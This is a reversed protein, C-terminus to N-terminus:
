ALLSYSRKRQEDFIPTVMSVSLEHVGLNLDPIILHLSAITDVLISLSHLDDDSQGVETALIFASHAQLYSVVPINWQPIPFPSGTNM